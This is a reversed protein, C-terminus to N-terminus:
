SKNKFDLLQNEIIAVGSSTGIRTAGAHIMEMAISYNSIGGSAKVGMDLGVAKRMLAIDKATAGSKSFGTSTKVFHAGSNKTLHCALIKEEDNLLCTEIIVKILTNPLTIVISRIEEEVFKYEGSKFMCLNMVVDIETAGQQALKTAEFLKSDPTNAGLPFGAVSCIKVKTNQLLKAAYQVWIPLVCVAAFQYKVAEACLNHIDETRADPRLLTHDIANNILSM